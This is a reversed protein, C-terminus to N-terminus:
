ARSSLAMVSSRVAVDHKAGLDLDPCVRNRGHEKAEYLHEDARRICALAEEDPRAEAVGVSITVPVRVGNVSFPTDAIRRRIREAILRGARGGARRRVVVIFEEGGFRGACDGSHLAGRLRRALRRLVRDGFLHGYRDNIRKFHDIDIMLVSVDADRKLAHELTEIISRRNPLRTLEDTYAAKWLTRTQSENFSETALSLDLGIIRTLFVALEPCVTSALLRSQASVFASQCAELSTDDRFMESGLELGREFYSASDLDLGLSAFYDHDLPSEGLEDLHPQIVEAQLREALAVDAPSLGFTHLRHERASETDLGFQQCLSFPSVAAM